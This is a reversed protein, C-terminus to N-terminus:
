SVEVHEASSRPAPIALGQARLGSLHMEIATRVSDRAKAKTPAVIGVGPLDPPYAGWGSDTEEYLVIYRM